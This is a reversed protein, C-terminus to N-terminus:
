LKWCSYFLKFPMRERKVLCKRKIDVQLRVDYASPQQEKLYPLSEPEKQDPGEVLFPELADLTVIWPSITTGFSKGLFPGLPVYEWAQIDRALFFFLSNFLIESM